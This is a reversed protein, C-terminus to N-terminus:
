HEGLVKQSVWFLSCNIEWKQFCLIEMNNSDKAFVTEKIALFHFYLFILGLQFYIQINFIHLLDFQNTKDLTKPSRTGQSVLHRGGEDYVPPLPPSQQHILWYAPM